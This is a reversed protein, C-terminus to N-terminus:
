DTEPPPKKKEEEIEVDGDLWARILRRAVSTMPLEHDFAKQRFQRYLSKDLDVTFRMQEPM